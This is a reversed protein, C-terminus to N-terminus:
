KTVVHQMKLVNCSRSPDFQIFLRNKKRVQVLSTFIAISFYTQKYVHIICRDGVLETIDLQVPTVNLKTEYFQQNLVPFINNFRKFIDQEIFM